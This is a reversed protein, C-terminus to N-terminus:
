TNGPFTAHTLELHDDTIAVNDWFQGGPYQKPSPLGDAQLYTLM